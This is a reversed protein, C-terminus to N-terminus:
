AAHRTPSSSEFAERPIPAQKFRLEATYIDLAERAMRVALPGVLLGWGGMLELGGFMSVIIAYSPLDM